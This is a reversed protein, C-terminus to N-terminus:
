RVYREHCSVLQTAILSGVQFEQEQQPLIFLVQAAGARLCQYAVRERYDLDTFGISHAIVTQKNMFSFDYDFPNENPPLIVSRDNIDNKASWSDSGVYVWVLSLDEAIERLNLGKSYPMKKLRTISM